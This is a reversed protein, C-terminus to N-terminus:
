NFMEIQDKNWKKIAKEELIEIPTDWKFEFMEAFNGDKLSIDADANMPVPLWDYEEQLLSTYYQFQKIVDQYENEPSDFIGSDHVQGIGKTKMGEKKLWKWMKLLVKFLFHASTGQIPYNVVQKWDMYGRFEFGLFTEVKFDNKRYINQADKRWQDYVKFRTGWMKKEVKQCHKTFKQFTGIRKNKLNDFCTKGNELKEDKHEWLAKACSGYYDGYFQPFTWCNKAYFRVMKSVNDHPTMWIDSANDRHMDSSKDQLYNILNPDKNYGASTIVEAGSFDLEIFRCGKSPVLGARTIFKALKDRKPINQFNPNQSSSRFSRATSINFSPHMKGNNEERQFQAIYTDKIKFLKRIELLEKAIWHGTKELSTKDVSKQDNGTKKDSTCKLHTFFLRRIDDNSSFNIQGYKEEYSKIEKSKLLNKFIYEIDKELEQKETEYFATNVHIGNFSMETFMNVVDNFFRQTDQHKLEKKQLEFLKYTFFADCGVYLLQEQLPMKHMTNFNSGNASKIFTKSGKDFDKIGWRVFVQHKLGTISQRNDLIHQTTKTCWYMNRVPIFLKSCWTQEFETRHAIKKCDSDLFDLFNEQVYKRNIKNVRWGPHDLPFAITRNKTSIAVSFINHGKQHPNLGSTEIDFASTENNSMITNLTDVIEEPDTCINIKDLYKIKKLKPLNKCADLAKKWVYKFYDSANKDRNNGFSVEPAMLPFGWCNWEHLPIQLESLSLASSTHVYEGILSKIGINGVLFIAKPKLRKIDQIVRHRCNNIITQSPQKSSTCCVAKTYWFDKELNYGMLKLEKRLIEGTTGSYFKNLIDEKKSPWGGVILIKKKGEGTCKIFPNKSNNRQKCNICIEPISPGFFSPIITGM